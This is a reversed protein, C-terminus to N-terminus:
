KKCKWIISTKFRKKKIALVIRDLFNATLGAKGDYVNEANSVADETPYDYEKKSNSNTLLQTTQKYDM